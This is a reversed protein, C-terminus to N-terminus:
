KWKALIDYARVVIYDIGQIKIENGAFSRFKVKDTPEVQIPMYNGNGAQRGPGIKVVTGRDPKKEKSDPTSLIIGSTAADEKPPLRILVQDKVCSILDLKMETGEYTFLIDDDKIMQHNIDNYRLESGDYKGYVVSQGTKAAMDMKIATDPHIRGPGAAIVIGETPRELLFVYKTINM